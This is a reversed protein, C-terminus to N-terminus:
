RWWATIGAVGFGGLQRVQQLDSEKMGGLAYVPLAADNLLASFGQWGLVAAQPHSATVAVPSLTVFDVGVAAAHHLSTADHCSAALLRRHEVPRQQWSMLDRQTLHVGVDPPFDRWPLRSNLLVRAQYRGALVRAEAVLEDLQHRPLTLTRLQLLRIGSRLCQELHELFTALQAAEPTILYLPPLQLATLIARNAAPFARQSLDAATVWEVPQGERGHAIGTFSDVRWVELRVTYGAYAHTVTLLPQAQQVEIGLEESLERRLAALSAEGAEVKGGPFEWLNGHQKDAPRRAILVQGHGDSIVAAVVHLVTDKM